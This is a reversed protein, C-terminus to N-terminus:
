ATFLGLAVCAAHIGAASVAVGTQQAIPTTGYFGLNSGDHNLDGDIELSSGFLTPQDVSMISAGSGGTNRILIASNFSSNLLSLNASSGHDLSLTRNTTPPAGAGIGVVGGDIALTNSGHTIIVNGANFNIVAGSALFLDAWGTGSAGLASGDDSASLLAGTLTLTEAVTVLGAFIGDHGDFSGEFDIFAQEVADTRWSQLKGSTFAVATDLFHAVGGDAIPSVLALYANSM